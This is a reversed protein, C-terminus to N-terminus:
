YHHEDKVLCEKIGAQFSFFLRRFFFFFSYDEIKGLLFYSFNIAYKNTSSRFKKATLEKELHLQKQFLFQRSTYNYWFIEGWQRQLVTCQQTVEESTHGNLEVTIDHSLTGYRFSPSM